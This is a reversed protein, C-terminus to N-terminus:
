KKYKLDRTMFVAVIPLLVALVWFSAEKNFRQAMKIFLYIGFGLTVLSLLRSLSNGVFLWNAVVTGAATWGIWSDVRGIEGMIVLNYVPVIATWGPKGAKDFVRWMLVIMPVAYFAFVMMWLFMFAAIAALIAAGAAPGYM